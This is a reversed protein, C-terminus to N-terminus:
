RSTSSRNNQSDAARHERCRRRFGIRFDRVASGERLFEPNSVVSFEFRGNKMDEFTSSQQDTIKKEGSTEVQRQVSSVLKEIRESM